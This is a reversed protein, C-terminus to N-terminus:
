QHEPPLQTALFFGPAEQPPPLSHTLPLQTSPAQQVGELQGVQWDHPSFPIPVHAFTPDPVVSGCPRQGFLPGQPLVPAQSPLPLQWCCDLVSEHPAATVQLPEVYWGCDNQLPPPM